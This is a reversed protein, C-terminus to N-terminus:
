KINKPTKAIEQAVKAGLAKGVKSVTYLTFLASIVVSISVAIVVISVVTGTTM